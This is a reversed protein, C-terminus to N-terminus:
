GKESQHAGVVATPRETAEVSEFASLTPGENLADWDTETTARVTDGERVECRLRRYLDSDRVFVKMSVPRRGGSPTLSNRSLLLAPPSDPEAPFFQELTMEVTLTTVNAM